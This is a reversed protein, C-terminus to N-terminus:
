DANIIAFNNLLVERRNQKRAEEEERRKEGCNLCEGLRDITLMYAGEGEIFRPDAGCNNICIVKRKMKGFTMWEEMDLYLFDDM